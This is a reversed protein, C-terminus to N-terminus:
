NYKDKTQNYLFLKIEDIINNINKKIEKNRKIIDEGDEYELVEREMRNFENYMKIYYESLRTIKKDITNDLEKIITSLNYTHNDLITEIVKNTNEKQWKNDINVDLYQSKINNMKLNMQEPIKKNFHMKEIIRLLPNSEDNSDLIRKMELPTLKYLDERGFSIIINNNTKNNNIQKKINNETKNITKEKIMIKLKEIEKKIEDVKKNLVKSEIKNEEKHKLKHKALTSSHKYIKECINCRYGNEKSNKIIQSTKVLEIGLEQSTKVLEINKNFISENVVINIIEENICPRKRGIHYTYNSKQKFIKGCKKCDYIM